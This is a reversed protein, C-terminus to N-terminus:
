IDAGRGKGEDRWERVVRAFARDPFHDVQLPSIPCYRIWEYTRQLDRTEDLELQAFGALQKWVGLARKDLYPQIAPNEGWREFDAVLEPSAGALTLDLCTTHHFEAVVSKWPGFPVLVSWYTTGELFLVWTKGAAPFTDVQWHRLPLLAPLIDPGHPKLKWRTRVRETTHLVLMTSFHLDLLPSSDGASISFKHNAFQFSSDPESDNRWPGDGM